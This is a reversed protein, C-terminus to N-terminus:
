EIVTVKTGRSFSGAEFGRAKAYSDIFLQVPIISLITFLFQDQENIYVKLINENILQTEDNTLLLVRGGFHAIERAMNISQSFTKGKSAFLIAKFGPQVMEMPGHRFEGGLIGAAAVKVAEKFMLASQCATSFDSGRAIVQLTNTEGFFDLMENVYEDYGSLMAETNDILKRVANVQEDGFNGSLYMGLIYSVLLTSVYTKTSTMEEKGSKTLLTFDANKALSSEQENTIGICHVTPPLVKKLEKIEFSEGSQSTCILLTKKELVSFNYHLLESANMAFSHIQFRNLFVSSAYSTFYSSGMGTFIIQDFRTKEIVSKVKALKMKGEGNVYYNLTNKLAKPQQYIEKLFKNM